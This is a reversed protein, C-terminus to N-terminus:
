YLLFFHFFTQQKQKESYRSQKTERHRRLIEGDIGGRGSLDHEV